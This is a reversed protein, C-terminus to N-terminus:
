FELGASAGPFMRFTHSGHTWVKEAFAVNRPRRDDEGEAVQLNLSPGAVLMLHKALALGVQVRLSSLGRDDYHADRVTGYNKGILDLDLFFRGGRPIAHVGLGFWSTYQRRGELDKDRTMGVGATAYIRRTGLKFGLNSVSTSDWGLTTRNDGDFVIPLLSISAGTNKRAVSVLGVQIGDVEDAVNVLGVQVGKQKRSVNVLGVKTAAHVGQGSTINTIGVQASTSIEAPKEVNVIGVQAGDMDGRQVNALGVQAGSMPGSAVNVMSVQAGRVPGRAVSSIWGVQAGQFGGMAMNYGAVQVGSLPGYTLALMGGVQAGVVGDRSINGAVSVQAGRVHESHGMIGLAFRHEVPAGGDGSMRYGPALVLDFGVVRYPRQDDPRVAASAALEPGAPGEHPLPTGDAGDPVDGRRTAVM